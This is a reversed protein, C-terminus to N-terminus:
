LHLWISNIREPEEHETFTFTANNDLMKRKMCAYTIYPSDALVQQCKVCRDTYALGMDKIFGEQCHNLDRTKTMHIQEAKEEEFIAYTTKCVGQAGAQGSFNHQAEHWRNTIQSQRHEVFRRCSTSM